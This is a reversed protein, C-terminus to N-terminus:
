FMLNLAISALKGYKVVGLAGDVFYLAFGFRAFKLDSCTMLSWGSTVALAAHALALNLDDGM